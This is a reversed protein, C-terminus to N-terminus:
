DFNKRLFKASEGRFYNEIFKLLEDKKKEDKELILPKLNHLLPFTKFAESWFSGENFTIGFKQKVLALLKSPSFQKKKILFYIDFLDKPENRDFYAMTKNAVLDKLSDINIGFLAGKKELSKKEHNYHVFELRLTERNELLFEHRDFVKQYRVHNFRGKEKLQKIFDTVRELSFPIQSFFDLDLSMRHHLFHYALLTGGTWYFTKQLPSNSLLDITLKQVSTLKM